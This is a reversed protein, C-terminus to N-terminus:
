SAGPKGADSQDEPSSDQTVIESMHKIADMVLFSIAAALAAYDTPSLARGYQTFLHKALVTVFATHGAVEPRALHRAIRKAFSVTKEHYDKFAHLQGDLEMLGDIMECIRPDDVALPTGVAQEVMRALENSNM